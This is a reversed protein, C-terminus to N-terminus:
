IKEYGHYFAHVLTRYGMRRMDRYRVRYKANTHKGGSGVIRICDQACADLRSLSESGTLVEFSWDVWNLENPNKRKGFFYRNIRDIMMQQTKEKSLQELRQRRVLKDAYHHLKWEIKKLSPEAVNFQGSEIRFGLLEFAEGPSTILTKDENYSLGRESLMRRLSTHLDVVEEKTNTFIAFDDAFRCYYVSNERIYEDIDLLYVNEFFNTLAGGSLVGTPGKVLVGKEYYEQRLLLSRFFSCLAPDSEGFIDDLQKVLIVPDIHDGFSKIDAKLVWCKRSCDLETVKRFLEAIHRGIRFSYISDSYLNDYDHLVFAMMKMLMSNNNNFRYVIRRRDSHGKRLRLIRPADFFFDGAALRNVDKLYDPSTLYDSLQLYEDSSVNYSSEKRKLFAAVTDPNQMKDFVNCETAQNENISM